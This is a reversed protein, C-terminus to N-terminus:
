SWYAVEDFTPLMEGRWMAAVAGNEDLALISPYEVIDYAQCFSEGERTGPDLSEIEKSTRREFERLWEEVTRSYDYGERWVCVVRM